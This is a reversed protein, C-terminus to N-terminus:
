DAMLITSRLDQLAKTLAQIEARLQAVEERLGDDQQGNKQPDLFAEKYSLEGLYKWKIYRKCEELDKNQHEIILDIGKEPIFIEGRKVRAKELLPAIEPLIEDARYNRWPDRAPDYKRLDKLTDVVYAALAAGKIVGEKIVPLAGILKEIM